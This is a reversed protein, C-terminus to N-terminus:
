THKAARARSLAAVCGSYPFTRSICPDVNFFEVMGGRGSRATYESRTGTLSYSLGGFVRLVSVYTPVVTWSSTVISVKNLPRDPAVQCYPMHGPGQRMHM